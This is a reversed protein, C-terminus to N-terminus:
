RRGGPNEDPADAKANPCGSFWIPASAERRLLLPERGERLGNGSRYPLTRDRRGSSGVLKVESLSLERFHFETQQPRADYSPM